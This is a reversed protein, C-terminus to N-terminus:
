ISHIAAEIRLVIKKCLDEKWTSVDKIDESTIYNLNTYEKIAKNKAELLLILIEKYKKNM